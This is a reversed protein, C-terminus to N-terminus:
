AGIPPTNAVLGDRVGGVMSWLRLTRSLNLSADRVLSLAEDEEHTVISVCAHNARLCQEMRLQDDM